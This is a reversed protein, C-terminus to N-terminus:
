TCYIVQVVLEANEEATQVMTQLLQRYNEREEQLTSEMDTITKAHNEVNKNLNDIQDKWVIIQNGLSFNTEQLTRMESKLYSNEDPFLSMASQQDVPFTTQQSYNYSVYNHCAFQISYSSDM